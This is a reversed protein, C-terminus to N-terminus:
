NAVCPTQAMSAGATALTLSSAAAGRPPGAIASPRTTTRDETLAGDEPPVEAVPLGHRRLAADFIPRATTGDSQFSPVLRGDSRYTQTDECEFCIVYDTTIGAHEVSLGHHPVPSCGSYIEPHVVWEWSGRHLADALQKRERADDITAHGLVAHGHFRVGPGGPTDEPDIAYLEMHAVSTLAASGRAPSRHQGGEVETIKEIMTESTQSAPSRTTACGIATLLLANLALGVKM